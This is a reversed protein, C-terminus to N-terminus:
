YHNYGSRVTCRGKKDWHWMWRDNQQKASLPVALIQDRDRENFLDNVIDIDWQVNNVM